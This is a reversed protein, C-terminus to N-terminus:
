FSESGVKTQLWLATKSETFDHDSWINRLKALYFEGANHRTKAYKEGPNGLGVIIKIM